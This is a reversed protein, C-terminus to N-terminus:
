ESLWLINTVIRPYYKSGLAKKSRFQDSCAQDKSGDIEWTMHAEDSKPDTKIGLVTRAVYQCLCIKSMWSNDATSSLKWGMDDYLCIGSDLINILHKQLVSLYDKFPGDFSIMENLGMEKPFVLGEIAPIIASKNENELVAPIFGLEEDYANTMTEASLEANAFAAEAEQELGLEKFLSNLALHSAWIKSGLYINNRSQGLSHDLSDYTTIEGGPWTMSSEFSMMGNRKAPDPNDRNLLSQFCDLLTKKHKLLFDKDQTKSYYVGMCCIWNTLQECTMFSFCLRDLGKVEYSSRGVPSFHNSAGMDHTFSLGGEYLKEPNEPSFVKDRYSYQDVFQDLVNKVTWPSWKMEYFLMDVTLDFTNMMRYEGENVVWRPKGNDELWQTSGYYSRTAHAILFKQAYNLNSEELEKDRKTAEALYAESNELAYALVDEISDFYRTYWYKTRIGYTVYGELFFGYALLYEQKKGAKVNFFLGATGGLLFPDANEPKNLAQKVTWHVFPECDNTKDIAVAMKDEHSFGKLKENEFIRWRQKKGPSFAIFLKIDKAGNTNDFSIKIFNAPCSVFKQDEDSSKEPDPIAFFPNIIELNLPAASFTDTAWKYTRTISDPPINLVDGEKKEEKKNEFYDAAEDEQMGMLPLQNLVGKEDVYGAIVSGNAPSGEELALGGSAGLMGCTLTGYSGLPSHHAHFSPKELKKIM